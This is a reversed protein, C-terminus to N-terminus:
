LYEQAASSDEPLEQPKGSFKAEVQDKHAQQLYEAVSIEAEARPTGEHLSSYSVSIDEESVLPPHDSQESEKSLSYEKEKKDKTSYLDEHLASFGLCLSFAIVIMQDEMYLLLEEQDIM